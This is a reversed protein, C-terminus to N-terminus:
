NELCSHYLCHILYYFRSRDMDLTRANLFVFSMTLEGYRSHSLNITYINLLPSTTNDYVRNCSEKNCWKRTVILGIMIEQSVIVYDPLTTMTAYLFICYDRRILNVPM